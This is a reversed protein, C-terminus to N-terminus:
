PAFATPKMLSLRNEGILHYTSKTLPVHLTVFDSEKLLTDLDVYATKYTQEIEQCVPKVDHYLMRMDFGLSWKAVARGVKGFGIIGLTKGYIDSGLMLKPKWGRYKSSRRFSDGEVITRAIAM